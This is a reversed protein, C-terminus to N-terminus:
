LLVMRIFSLEFFSSAKKDYSSLIAWQAIFVENNSGIYVKTDNRGTSDFDCMLPAVYHMMPAYAHYVSGINVFGDSTIVINRVTYGYYPFSFQLHTHYAIVTQHSQFNRLIM